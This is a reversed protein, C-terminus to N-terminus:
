LRDILYNGHAISETDVSNFINNTKIPKNYNESFLM